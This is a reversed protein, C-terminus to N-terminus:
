WDSKQLEQWYPSSEIEQEIEDFLAKNGPLNEPCSIKFISDAINFKGCYDFILMEKLIDEPFSYATKRDWCPYNSSSARNIIFKSAEVSDPEIQYLNLLIQDALKINSLRYKIGDWKWVLFPAPSNSCGYHWCQYHIDPFIMEPLKDGDIDRYFFEGKDLGTFRGIEHNPRDLSYIFVDDAGDNGGSACVIIADSIGDGNIDSFKPPPPDYCCGDIGLFPWIISTVLLTDNRYIKYQGGWDNTDIQLYYRLTILYGDVHCTDTKMGGFDPECDTQGSGISTLILLLFSILLFIYLRM